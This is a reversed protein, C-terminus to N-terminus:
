KKTKKAPIKAITVNERHDLRAGDVAIGDQLTKKIDTVSPTVSVEGSFGATNKHEMIFGNWYDRANKDSPDFDVSITVKGKCFMAPIQDPNDIVTGTSKRLSVRWVNGEIKKVDRIELATRVLEELWEEEAKLRKLWDKAQQQLDPLTEKLRYAVGDVKGKIMQDIEVVNTSISDLEAELYPDLEGGRAILEEDIAVQIRALETRAEALVKLPANKFSDVFMRVRDAVPLNHDVLKLETTQTESM